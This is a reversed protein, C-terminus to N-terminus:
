HGRMLCNKLFEFPFSFLFILLKALSWHGCMFSFMGEKEAGRWLFVCNPRLTGKKRGLYPKADNFKHKLNMGIIIYLVIQIVGGGLNPCNLFYHTNKRPIGGWPFPAHVILM